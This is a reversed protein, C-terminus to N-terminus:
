HCAQVFRAPGVVVPAPNQWSQLWPSWSFETALADAPLLTEAVTFEKGGFEPSLEARLVPISKALRFQLGILNETFTVGSDPSPQSVTSNCDINLSTRATVTVQGQAPVEFLILENTMRESEAGKIDFNLPSKIEHEFHGFHDDSGLDVARVVVQNQPDKPIAVMIRFPHPNAINYSFIAQDKIPLSQFGKFETVTSIKLPALHYAIPFTASVLRIASNTADAIFRCNQHPNTERPNVSSEIPAPAIPGELIEQLNIKGLDNIPRESRFYDCKLYLQGSGTQQSHALADALSDQTLSQISKLQHDALSLGQEKALHTLQVGEIKASNQDKTNTVTDFEFKCIVNDTKEFFFERPVLRTLQLETQNHLTLTQQYTQEASMCDSKITIDFFKEDTQYPKLEPFFLTSDITLPNKNIELFGIIGDSTRVSPFGPHFERKVVGPASQTVPTGSSGGSDNSDSSCSTLGFLPFLVSILILLVRLQM